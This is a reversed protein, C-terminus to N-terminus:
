IINQSFQPTPTPYSTLFKNLYKEAEAEAEAEVEVNMIWIGKSKMYMWFKGDQLQAWLISLM